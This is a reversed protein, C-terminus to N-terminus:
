TQINFTFCHIIVIKKQAMFNKKQKQTPTFPNEWVITTYVEPVLTTFKDVQAM